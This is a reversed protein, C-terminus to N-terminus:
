RCFPFPDATNTFHWSLDRLFDPQHADWVLSEAAHVVRRGYSTAQVTRHDSGRAMERARTWKNEQMVAEKKRRETNKFKKKM